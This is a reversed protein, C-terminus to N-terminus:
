EPLKSQALIQGLTRAPITMDKNALIQQTFQMQARSAVGLLIFINNYSKITRNGADITFSEKGLIDTNILMKAEFGNVVHVYQHIMITCHENGPFYLNITAYDVLLHKEPGVGRVSVPLAKKKMVADPTVEKLFRRNILTM